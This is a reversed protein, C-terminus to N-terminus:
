NVVPQDDTVTNGFTSQWEAPELVVPVEIVHRVESTTEVRQEIKERWGVLNQVLMIAAKTSGEEAQRWILRKARIRAEAGGLTMAEDYKAKFEPDAFRNYPDSSCRFLFHV